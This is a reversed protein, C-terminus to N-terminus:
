TSPFTLRFTTGQGVIGEFVQIKIDSKDAITKVISLGLGSGSVGTGTVRYFRDFVRQRDEPNIGIGNDSIDLVPHNDQLTLNIRIQGGEPTYAIANGLINGIMVALSPSDGQVSVDKLDSEVSIAKTEALMRQEQVVDTVLGKLGVSTGERQVNDPEQRALELLQHVLHISRSVGRELSVISEQREDEGKSRQLLDLQLRVATLPTRLEHAADATFQRQSEMAVHLRGLLDNLAAVLSRIEDPVEGANIPKMFTATRSQILDSVQMLPRFGYSILIWLLIFIVPFQIATPIIISNYVERIVDRRESLEQSIQITKGNIEEQYYEWKKDHFFVRGFGSVSQLSLDAIPHTSYLLKGNDWIQVLFIQEGRPWENSYPQAKGLEDNAGAIGSSIVALQKMNGDYLEDLEHRISLYTAVCSILSALTLISLVSLLIRKRISTM